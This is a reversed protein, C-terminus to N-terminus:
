RSDKPKNGRGRAHSAYTPPRDAAAPSAATQKSKITDHRESAIARESNSNPEDQPATGIAGHRAIQRPQKAAM